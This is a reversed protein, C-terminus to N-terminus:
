AAGKLELDDLELPLEIQARSAGSADGAPTAEFNAGAGYLAHLREDIQELLPQGAIGAAFGAGSTSVEIRLRQAVIGVRVQLRLAGADVESVAQQVLPLMVLAPLRAECAALAIDFEVRRGPASRGVIDLWAQALATEKEVTSASERLHPLAARLYVILDELMTGAASADTRYLQRIRDLTGFLFMPEVRAQLAQLQSELTKRRAGARAQEAEHQRHRAAMATRRNVHVFTALGGVLTGILTLDLRHLLPHLPNFVHTSGPPLFDLGLALRVEWGLVAGLLASGVVALAYTVARPAGRDVAEDAAVLAVVIVIGMVTMEVARALKATSPAAMIASAIGAAGFCLLLALASTALALQWLSARRAAARVYGAAASLAAGAAGPLLPAAARDASM